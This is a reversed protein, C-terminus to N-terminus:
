DYICSDIDNIINFDNGLENKLRIYVKNAELRFSEKEDNSWPSPNSPCDWDLCGAYRIELTELENKLEESIPMDKNSIAYGFKNRAIENKAWVCFGGHEFWFKLEYKGMVEM